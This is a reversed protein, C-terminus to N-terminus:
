QHHSHMTDSMDHHMAPMAPSNKDLNTTVDANNLSDSPMAHMPHTHSMMQSMWLPVVMVMVGAIMLLAGNVQRLRFKGIAHRLLSVTTQTALLMPLTGLGFAVMLGAGTLTEHGVVAMLLASYVLGCPLFGWLLGAALAKGVSDLPFLRRRLPMLAHWFRFGIKELQNLLPVGLLSLGILLLVAGLLVRPVPSHLFPTLVATGLTGALLGLVAYSLLRGLHYLAILLRQRAPSQQQMSMGFATVIGGCMGLCHPSGLLGMSFATAFLLVFSM